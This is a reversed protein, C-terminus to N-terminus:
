WATGTGLLSTAHYRMTYSAAGPIVVRNPRSSVWEGLCVGDMSHLLPATGPQGSM